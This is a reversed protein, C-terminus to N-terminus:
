VSHSGKVDSAGAGDGGTDVCPEGINAAVVVLMDIDVFGKRGTSKEAGGGAGPGKV